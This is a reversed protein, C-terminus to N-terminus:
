SVLQATQRVALPAPTIVVESVLQAAGSLDPDARDDTQAKAAGPEARCVVTAVSRVVVFFSSRPCLSYGDGGL